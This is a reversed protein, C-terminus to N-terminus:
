RTSGGCADLMPCLSGPPLTSFAAMQASPAQTPALTAPMVAAGLWLGLTLAMAGGPALLALQWWHPRTPRPARPPLARAAAAIRRDVDPALDFDPTVMPLAAFQVRVQRLETLMPACIPCGDVHAQLALREPERLAEDTLASLAEIRPCPEEPTM